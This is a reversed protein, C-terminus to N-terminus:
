SGATAAQESAIRAEAREMSQLTLTFRAGGSPVNEARVSGQHFDEIITKVWNLGLGESSESKTSYGYQFIAEIEARDLLRGEASRIGPGNDEIEVLYEATQSNYGTRVTVVPERASSHHPDRKIADLANTLVNFLVLKLLRPELILAPLSEEFQRRIHIRASISPEFARLFDSILEKLHVREFQPRKVYSFSRYINVIEQLFKTSDLLGEVAERLLAGRPGQLESPPLKLLEKVAMLDLKSTAIINTLDHGLNRSLVINAESRHRFIDQQHARQMLLGHHLLECAQRVCSQRYKLDPLNRRLWGLILLANGGLREYYSFAEGQIHFPGDALSARLVALHAKAENHSRASEEARQAPVVLEEIIVLADEEGALEVLQLKAVGYSDCVLELIEELLKRRRDADHLPIMENFKQQVRQLLAQSAMENYSIELLGRARMILRPPEFKSNELHSTVTQMPRLLYKFIFFYAALWVVVLVGAYVRYHNTLGIIPPYDSPSSFHAVLRGVSRIGLERNLPDPIRLDTVRDFNRSFLNNRWSNTRSLKAPNAVTIIAIGEPDLLTFSYMSTPGHAIRELDYQLRKRAIQTAIPDRSFLAQQAQESLDDPLHFIEYFNDRIIEYKEGMYRQHDLEYLVLALTLFFVGTAIAVLIM